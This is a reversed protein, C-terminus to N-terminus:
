RTAKNHKERYMETDAISILSEVTEGAAFKAQVFGFSITIGDGDGICYGAAERSIQSAIQESQQLSMGPMILVFEDGGLRCVTGPDTVYKKIVAAASQILADGAGHGWTDNIHKLGDIDAFCVTLPKKQERCQAYISSLYELGARRNFLGTLADTRAMADLKKQAKVYATNDIIITSIIGQGRSGCRTHTVDFYRGRGDSVAERSVRGRIDNGIKDSITLARERGFMNRYATNSFLIARTQRNWVAFGQELANIGYQLVRRPTDPTDAALLGYLEAFRHLKEKRADSAPSDFFYVAVGQTGYAKTYPCVAIDAARKIQKLAEYDTGAQSLFDPPLVPISVGRRSRWEDRLVFRSGASEYLAASFAGADSGTLQLFENKGGKRVAAIFAACIDRENIEQQISIVILRAAKSFCEVDAEYTEARLFVEGARIRVSKRSGESADAIIDTTEIYREGTKFGTNQAAENAFLIYGTSKETIVAPMPLKTLYQYKTDNENM